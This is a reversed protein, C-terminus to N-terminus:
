AEPAERGSRPAVRTFIRSDPLGLSRLHDQLLRLHCKCRSAFLFCAHSNYYFGSYGGLELDSLKSAMQEERGRANARLFSQDYVFVIAHRWLAQKVCALTATRSDQPKHNEVPKVGLFAYFTVENGSWEGTLMPEIYVTYELKRLADCFFRKAMDYCDGFYAPNM